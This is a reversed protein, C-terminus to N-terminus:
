ERKVFLVKYRILKLMDDNLDKDMREAEEFIFDTNVKAGSQGASEIEPEPQEPREPAEPQPAGGAILHLGRDGAKQVGRVAELLIEMGYILTRVPIFLIQGVYYGFSGPITNEDAGRRDSRGTM